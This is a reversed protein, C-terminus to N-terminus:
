RLSRNFAALREQEDLLGAVGLDWPIMGVTLPLGVKTATVPSNQVHDTSYFHLGFIEDVPFVWNDANKEVVVMRAKRANESEPTPPALDSDLISHISACLRLVGHINVLGLLQRNSRHPIRRIPLLPTADKVFSTPLALWQDAIRFLFGNGRGHRDQADDRSKSLLGTWFRRYDEPVPRDM